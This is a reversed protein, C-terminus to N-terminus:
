PRLVPLPRPPADIIKLKALHAALKALVRNAYPLMYGNRSEDWGYDLMEAYVAEPSREEILLRYFAVALSTRQSGAACHILVPKGERRCRDIVSLAKAYERWDGTGDGALAFRHLPIGARGAFAFEEAQGPLGPEPGNLDIIERVGYLEVIRELHPPVLQGSRYLEGEVVVGFRKPGGEESFAFGVAAAVGAAVLTLAVTARRLRKLRDVAALFSSVM